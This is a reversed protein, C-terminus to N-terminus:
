KRTHTHQTPMERAVLAEQIHGEFARPCITAFRFQSHIATGFACLLSIITQLFTLCLCDFHLLQSRTCSRKVHCIYKHTYLCPRDPNRKCNLRWSSHTKEMLNRM